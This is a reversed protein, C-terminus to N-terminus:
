HIMVLVGMMRSEIFSAGAECEASDKDTTAGDKDGWDETSDKDEGEDTSAGEAGFILQNNM